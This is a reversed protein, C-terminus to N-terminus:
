WRGIIKAGVTTDGTWEHQVAAEVTWADSFSMVLAVKAGSSDVTGVLANKKDGIPEPVSALARALADPTFLHAGIQVDSM